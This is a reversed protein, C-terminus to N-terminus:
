ESSHFFLVAISVPLNIRSYDSIKTQDFAFTPFKEITGSTILANKPAHALEESRFALFPKM